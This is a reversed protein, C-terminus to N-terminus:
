KMDGIASSWHSGFMTIHHNVLLPTRGILECLGKSMDERSIVSCILFKDGSDCHKHDCSKGTHHYLTFLEWLCIQTLGWHPSWTLARSLNFVNYRWRCFVWSYCVLCPASKCHSARMRLGVHGQLRTVM